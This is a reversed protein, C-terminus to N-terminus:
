DVGRKFHGKTFDKLYEDQLIKQNKLFSKEYYEMVKQIQKKNEMTFSIRYGDAKITEVEEKMHLLSLPSTNYIINYCDKCQNKVHFSKDYRDILTSFGSQKKCGETTKVVCQASVMLPLYGYLIMEGGDWSRNRLEKQNAELPLTVQTIGAELFNEYAYSSWIYLSSDSLIKVKKEFNRTKLFERLLAFSEYNGVIFGDIGTEMLAKGNKQYWLITDQRLIAPMQYYIEKQTGDMSYKKHVETALRKLNNLEEQQLFIGSEVYIRQVFPYEVVFDLQEISSVSVALYKKSKEEKKRKLSM